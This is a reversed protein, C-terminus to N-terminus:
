AERNYVLVRRQHGRRRAGAVVSLRGAVNTGLDGRLGGLPRSDRRESSEQVSLLVLLRGVEVYKEAFSVNGDVHAQQTIGQSSAVWVYEVPQDPLLRRGCVPCSEESPAGLSRKM